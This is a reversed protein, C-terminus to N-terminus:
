NRISLRIGVSVDTLVNFEDDVLYYVVTATYNGAAVEKQLAFDRMEVGVPIYPSSFILEDFMTAGNEDDLFVDVYVTRTNEAYNEIYIGRAARDWRDFEWELSMSVLYTPDEIPQQFEELLEEYNDTTLVTGRGGIDSQTMVDRPILREDEADNSNLNIVILTICLAVVALGALSIASYMLIKIGGVNEDKKEKAPAEKRKRKKAKKVERIM